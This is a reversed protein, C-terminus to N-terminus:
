SRPALISDLLAPRKDDRKLHPYRLGGHYDIDVNRYRSNQKVLLHLPEKGDKALRVVTKLLDADFAAGDIATIQIGSTLGAKFAPSDWLVERITGDHEATLGLSYRLEVTKHEAERSATYVNPTDDYSLVYGGRVIGDLPAGREHSYLRHNLFTAWDYPEVANLTAVVDDFRYTVPVYSGDNISFFRRAFDDLSRANHSRERILTDVDLWVLESEDYYDEFRQWSEWSMPRRPNIIEDNTTDALTRWERGAMYDYYAATAALTELAETPTRLGARATLVDGWYETQGEYVWLLSNRMPVNYTPTWLDAPRRFKGNWSHTYEHALLSRDAVGKDWETFYNGRLGDESSQHHETGAYHVRDSLSFLFDYHDYHHSGYLRYAQTVLARHASLEADTAVLEDARDAFVQLRVPASGAPTLDIERHHRGAYLPSDGLTELTTRRFDHRAGQGGAPELACGFGFGEPLTVSAEVPIQRAYYGAPYLVVSTWELIVIDSSIETAGVESSVPSLYQFELELEAVNRPVEVHFAYMDVDDRTWDLRAGNARVVLGALKDIPGEPAHAGPIWEPYLLTVRGATVPVVEHVRVIRRALDTADVALRLVGPYPRDRPAAVPATPTAPLPGPSALSLTAFCATCALAVITTASTRLSM